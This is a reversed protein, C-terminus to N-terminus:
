QGELVVISFERIVLFIGLAIAFGFLMAFLIGAASGSGYSQAFLLCPFFSLATILILKKM